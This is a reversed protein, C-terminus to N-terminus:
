ASRSSRRIGVANEVADAVAHMPKGLKRLWVALAVRDVPATDGDALPVVLTAKVKGFMM